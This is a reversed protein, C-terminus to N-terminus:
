LSSDGASIALAGARLGQLIEKKSSILGGAIIPLDVQRTLQDIISPMLGPLVEIADPKCNRSMEIGKEVASKDILFIRQIAMLKEEKAYKM